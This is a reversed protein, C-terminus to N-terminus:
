CRNYFLRKEMNEKSAGPALQAPVGETGTGEVLVQGSNQDFFPGYSNPDFSQNQPNNLCAEIMMEQIQEETAIFANYFPDTADVLQNAANWAEPNDTEIWDSCWDKYEQTTCPDQPQTSTCRKWYMYHGQIIEEYEPPIPPIEEIAQVAKVELRKYELYNGTNPDYILNFNDSEFFGYKEDYSIDAGTLEVTTLLIQLDDIRRKSAEDGERYQNTGHLQRRCWSIQAKNFAEIIQWCEINDYDNSAIKNLRQKFKIQLTSNNM